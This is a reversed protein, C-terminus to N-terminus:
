ILITYTATGSLKCPLLPTFTTFTEPAVITIHYEGPVLAKLAAIAQLIHM